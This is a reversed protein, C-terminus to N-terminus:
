PRRAVVTQEEWSEDPPREANRVEHERRLNFGDIDVHESILCKISGASPESSPLAPHHSASLQVVKFFLLLHLYLPRLHPVFVLVDARRCGPVRRQTHTHRGQSPSM